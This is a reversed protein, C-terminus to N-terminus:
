QGVIFGWSFLPKRGVRDVMLMYFLIAPFEIVITSLFTTYLSGPIFDMSMSVGYYSMSVSSWALLTVLFWSRLTRQKLIQIFTRDSSPVAAMDHLPDEPLRTGNSSAVAALVATAEGSGCLDFGFIPNPLIAKEERSL